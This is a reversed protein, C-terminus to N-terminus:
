RILLQGLAGANFAPNWNTFKVVAKIIQRKESWHCISTPLLLDVHCVRQNNDMYEAAWINWRHCIYISPLNQPLAFRCPVHALQAPESTSSPRISAVAVSSLIRSWFRYRKRAELQHTPYFSGALDLFSGYGQHNEPLSASQRLSPLHLFASDILVSTPIQPFDGQAQKRSHAGM